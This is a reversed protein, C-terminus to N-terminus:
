STKGSEAKAEAKVADYAAQLIEQAGARDVRVLTGLYPVAALRDLIAAMKAAGPVDPMEEDAWAFAGQAEHKLLRMTADDIKGAARAARVRDKLWGVAKAPLPAIARKAGAVILHSGIAGALLSAPDLKQLHQVLHFPDTM